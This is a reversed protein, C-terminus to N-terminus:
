EQSRFERHDVLVLAKATDLFSIVAGAELNESSGGIKRIDTFREEKTRLPPDVSARPFM